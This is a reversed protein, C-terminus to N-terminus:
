YHYTCSSSLFPYLVMESVDQIQMQRVNNVTEKGKAERPIEEDADADEEEQQQRRREAAVEKEKEKQRRAEEEVREKERAEKLRRERAREWEVREQKKSSKLEEAEKVRRTREDDRLDKEKSNRKTPPADVDADADTARAKEKGKGKGKATATATASARKVVGFGFPAGSKLADPVTSVVNVVKAAGAGSTSATPTPEELVTKARRPSKGGTSMRAVRRKAKPTPTSPAVAAPPAPEVEAEEQEVEEELPAEPESEHDGASATVVRLPSGKRPRTGQRTKEGELSDLMEEGEREDVEVGRKWKGVRRMLNLRMEYRAEWATWEKETKALIFDLQELAEDVEEQQEDEGAGLGVRVGIWRGERGATCSLRLVDSLVGWRGDAPNGKAAEFAQVARGRLHGVRHTRADERESSTSGGYYQPPPSPPLEPMNAIAIRRRKYSELLSINFEDTKRPTRLSM